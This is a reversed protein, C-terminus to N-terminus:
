PTQRGAHHPSNPQVITVVYNEHSFDTEVAKGTLYAMTQENDEHEVLVFGNKYDIVELVEPWADLTVDATGSTDDRDPLPNTRTELQLAMPDIGLEACRRRAYGVLLNSNDIMGEDIIWFTKDPKPTKANPKLFSVSDDKEPDDSEIYLIIRDLYSEPDSGEALCRENYAHMATGLLAAPGSGQRLEEPVLDAMKLSGACALFKKAQSPSRKTHFAM